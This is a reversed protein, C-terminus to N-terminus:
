FKAVLSVTSTTDLRKENPITLANHYKMTYAVRLSIYSSLVFSVSPEGNIYYVNNDTFNPLYEVWFRYSLTQDYVENYESYLRGFSYYPNKPDGINKTYRYGTEAFFNRPESKMFFYKGGIDTNDHQVYGGYPAADSGYALYGSFTDTFAHEYRLTFDWALATETGNSKARLYHGALSYTDLEYKYVTKQKANYSESTSNGDINVLALESEHAWRSKTSTLSAGAGEQAWVNFSMLLTSILVVYRMFKRERPETTTEIRSLILIITQLDDGAIRHM